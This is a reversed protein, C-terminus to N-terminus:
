EVCINMSRSLHGNIRDFVSQCDNDDNMLYWNIRKDRRFWTLQRKAYRRTAKKTEAIAENLDYNGELYQIVQKYGLTQFPKLEKHYGMNLISRVEDVLGEVFMKEVRKEIRQYLEARQYTVGVIEMRYLPKKNDQKYSSIPRGTLYYVEFARSIRRFDHPDIREASAPDIDKLKQYIEEQKGAEWLRRLDKRIVQYGDTDPFEFPDIVSQIYLGTGGVLFPLKGREQIEQIKDRALSQFQAASFDEDPELIDILHHPVGRQEELTLKASGINLYKYLQVSDASIIEGQLKQALEVALDSKGAATPGVIVVLPLNM